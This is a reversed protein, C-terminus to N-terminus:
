DNGKGRGFLGWCYQSGFGTYVSAKVEERFPLNTADTQEPSPDNGYRKTGKVIIYLEMQKTQNPEVLTSVTGKM